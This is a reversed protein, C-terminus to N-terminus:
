KWFGCFWAVCVLFLGLAVISALGELLSGGHLVPDPEKPKLKPGYLPHGDFRPEPVDKDDCMVAGMTVQWYM